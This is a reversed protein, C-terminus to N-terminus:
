DFDAPWEPHRHLEFLRHIQAQTVRGESLPPLGDVPFFAVAEVEGDHAGQEADTVACEFFAKYAYFPAPTHGQKDRDLLALLRTARVIYGSEERVERVVSEGATEGPDAWGGPLSWRGDVREKVLLVTSGDFVVGRVDVKPTAHGADAAFLGEITAPELGTETTVIESALTRVREYRAIDYPDRAYTLGTQALAQLEKAWALWKPDM